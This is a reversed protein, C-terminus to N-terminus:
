GSPGAPAPPSPPAPPQLPPAPQPPPLNITTENHEINIVIQNPPLPPPDDNLAMVGLIVQLVALWMQIWAMVDQPTKLLRVQNALEPALREIQKALEEGRDVGIPWKWFFGERLLRVLEELRERSLNSVVWPLEERLNIEIGVPRILQDGPRSGPPEHTLDREANEGTPEDSM